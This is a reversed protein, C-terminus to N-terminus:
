MDSLTVEIARLFDVKMQGIIFIAISSTVLRRHRLSLQPSCVVIVHKSYVNYGMKIIIWQIVPHDKHVIVGFQKSSANYSFEPLLLRIIYKM